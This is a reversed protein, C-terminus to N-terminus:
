LLHFKQLHPLSTQAYPRAKRMRHFLTTAAGEQRSSKYRLCLNRKQVRNDPHQIPAPLPVSDHSLIALHISEKRQCQKLLLLLDGLILLMVRAGLASLFELSLPKDLM